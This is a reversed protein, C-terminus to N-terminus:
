DMYWGLMKFKPNIKLDRKINKIMTMNRKREEESGSETKNRGKKRAINNAGGTSTTKFLFTVVKTL